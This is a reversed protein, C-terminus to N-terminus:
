DVFDPITALGEEIIHLSAKEREVTQPVTLWKPWSYRTTANTVAGKHWVSVAVGDSQTTIIDLNYCWGPSAGDNVTMQTPDYFSANDLTAQNNNEQREQLQRGTERPSPHHMNSPVKGIDQYTLEFGDNIWRM